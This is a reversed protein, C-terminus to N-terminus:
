GSPSTPKVAALVSTVAVVSALAVVSSVPTMRSVAVLFVVVHATRIDPDMTRDQNATRVATTVKHWPEQAITLEHLHRTGDFQVM